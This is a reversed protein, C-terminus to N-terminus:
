PTCESDGSIPTYRSLLRYSVMIFDPLGAKIITLMKDFMM